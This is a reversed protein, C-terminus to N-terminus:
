HWSVWGGNGGLVSNYNKAAFFPEAPSEAGLASQQLRNRPAWKSNGSREETGEAFPM